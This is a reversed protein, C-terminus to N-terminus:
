IIISMIKGFSIIYASLTVYVSQIELLPLPNLSVFLSTPYSSIKPFRKMKPIRIIYLGLSNSFDLNIVVRPFFLIKQGAVSHIILCNYGSINVGPIESPQSINHLAGNENILNLSAALEGDACEYDSPVATYGSYKIDKTM